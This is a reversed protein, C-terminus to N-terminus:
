LQRQSHSTRCTISGVSPWCPAWCGQASTRVRMGEDILRLELTFVLSKTGSKWQNIPVAHMNYIHNIYQNIDIDIPVGGGTATMRRRESSQGMAHQRKDLSWCIFCETGPARWCASSTIIRTAQLTLATSRSGRDGTRPSAPSAYARGPVSEEARREPTAVEVSSFWSGQWQGTSAARCTRVSMLLTDGARSASRLPCLPVASQPTWVHDALHTARGAQAKNM